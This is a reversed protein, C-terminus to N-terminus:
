NKINKIKNNNKQSILFNNYLDKRFQIYKNVNNNFNFSQKYNNYIRIFKKM